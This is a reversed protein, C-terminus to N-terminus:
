KNTSIKLTQQTYIYEVDTQSLLPNNIYYLRIGHYHREQETNKVKQNSMNQEICTLYHLIGDCRSYRNM